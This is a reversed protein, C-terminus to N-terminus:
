GNEPLFKLYLVLVIREPLSWKIKTCAISYINPCSVEAGMFSVRGTYFIRRHRPILICAHEWKRSHLAYRIDEQANVPLNRPSLPHKTYFAITVWERSIPPPPPPESSPSRACYHVGFTGGSEVSSKESSKELWCNNEESQQISCRNGM